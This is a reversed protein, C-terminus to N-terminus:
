KHHARKSDILEVSVVPGQGHEFQQSKTATTDPPKDIDNQPHNTTHIARRSAGSSAPMGPLVLQALAMPHVLTLPRDSVVGSGVNDTPFYQNRGSPLITELSVTISM